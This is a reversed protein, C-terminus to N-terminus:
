HSSLAILLIVLLVTYMCKVNSAYAGSCIHGVCQVYIKLHVEVTTWIYIYVWIVGCMLWFDILQVM